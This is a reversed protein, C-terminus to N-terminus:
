YTNIKWTKTNVRVKVRVRVRVQGLFQIHGLDSTKPGFKKRHGSQVKKSSM